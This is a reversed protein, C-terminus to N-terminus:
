GSKAARRSSTYAALAIPLGVFITHAIMENVFDPLSFPHPRKPVRSLPVVIHYMVLYVAIGFLPGWVLPQRYLRPLWRCGLYYATAAGFAVTFHLLVGLWFTPWGGQFSGPGILGSAIYHFIGGITAGKIWGFYVIADLGDLLGAVLGGGLITALPRPRGAIGETM